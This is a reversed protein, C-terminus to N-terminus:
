QAGTVFSRLSPRLCHSWNSFGAGHQAEAAWQLTVAEWYLPGPELETNVLQHHTAESLRRGERTDRKETLHPALNIIEGFHDAPM